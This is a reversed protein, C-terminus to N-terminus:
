SQAVAISIGHTHQKYCAQERTHIVAFFPCNDSLDAVRNTRFCM